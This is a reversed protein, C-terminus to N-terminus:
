PSLRYRDRPFLIVERINRVGAMVMMLRYLGLGWGAHPPMGWGYIELHTSFNDPNLGRAKMANELEKKDHIRTSGSTVEMGDIVLDFSESRSEDGEIPKTYFARLMTPFHIIFFPEGILKSLAELGEKPVDDGWKVKIGEKDLMSLADDYTIVKFPKSPVKVERGIQGLLGVTARYSEVVVDELIGMVDRYNMFAAEADVSIFENVHYTTDHKEARYAPGIEFVRELSATLEEKYLQPSQALYATREFYQVPFLEAGGETSTAIIKPTFVEIFGHSYLTARMARVVESLAKFLVVNSRRKLDVTRYRLRLDLMTEDVNGWIDIPLPNAKNLLKVEIPEVEVGTKAVKSARVIGRVSVVDEKSLKSVTDWTEDNVSSRKVTVQVVGERDRLMIFKIRGVDRIEWVWGSLTVEKGDLEPKVESTWHTKRYIAVNLPSAQTNLDKLM